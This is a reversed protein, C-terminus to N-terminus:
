KATATNVIMRLFDPYEIGACEKACSALHTTDGLTPFLNIDIMYFEGRSDMRFDVRMYRKAGVAKFTRRAYEKIREDTFKLRNDCDKFKLEHTLIGDKNDYTLMVPYVDPVGTKYNAIIGVTFERGEIFEEIIALDGLTGEIEMVKRRIQERTRCISHEDVCNSDEGHLPKVFFLGGDYPEIITKPTPVGYQSLIHKSIEKDYTLNVTDRSEATTRAGTEVLRETITRNRTQVLIIDQGKDVYGFDDDETAFVRQIEEGYVNQLCRFIDDPMFASKEKLTTVVYIM